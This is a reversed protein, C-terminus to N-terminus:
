YRMMYIIGIIIQTTELHLGKDDIYYEKMQLYITKGLYCLRNTNYFM